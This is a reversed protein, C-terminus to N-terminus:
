DIDNGTMIVKMFGRKKSLMGIVFVGIVSVCIFEGLSVYVVSEWFPLGQIYHLEAAVVFGNIVVPFISAVLLNTKERFAYILVASVLTATPGFGVDAFGLPSMTNSIFCGVTLSFIYDKNFFCLLMLLESFRLQVQGFALPACLVTMLVYLATMVGINMMRRSNILEM